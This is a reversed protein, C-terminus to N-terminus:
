TMHFCGSIHEIVAACHPCGCWKNRACEADYAEDNDAPECIGDHPVKRCGMRTKVQCSKCQQVIKELTIEGLIKKCSALSCHVSKKGLKNKLLYDEYREAVDEPIHTRATELSIKEGCCIASPTSTMAAQFMYKLCTNCYWHSCKLVLTASQPRPEDCAACLIGTERADHDDDQPEAMNATATAAPKPHKTCPQEVQSVESASRARKRHDSLPELGTNRTAISTTADGFM